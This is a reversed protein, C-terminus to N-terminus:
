AQARLAAPQGLAITAALAAFRLFLSLPFKVTTRIVM